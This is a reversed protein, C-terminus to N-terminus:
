RQVVIGKNLFIESLKKSNIERKGGKNDLNMPDYYHLIVKDKMKIFGSVLIMHTGKQQVRSKVSAIVYRNSALINLLHPISVRKLLSAKLKYSQLTKVLIQHKWGIDKNGWKDSDLYGNKRRIQKILNFLSGAYLGETKLIMLVNAIACSRWAWYSYDNINNTGFRKAARKDNISGYNRTILKPDPDGLQDVFVVKKNKDVGYFKKDKLSSIQSSYILGDLLILVSDFANKIIKLIYLMITLLVHVNYM